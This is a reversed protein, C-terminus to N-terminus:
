EEDERVEPASTGPCPLLMACRLGDPFDCDITSGVYSPPECIPEASFFLALEEGMDDISIVEHAFTRYAADKANNAKVLARIGCAACEVLFLREECYYASLRRGCSGCCVGVDKALYDTGNGKGGFVRHCAKDFNTAGAMM